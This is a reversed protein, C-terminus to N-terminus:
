AISLGPARGEPPRTKWNTHRKCLDQAYLELFDVTRGLISDQKGSLPQEAEEKLLLAFVRKFPTGLRPHPSPVAASHCSRLAHLGWSAAHLRRVSVPPPAGVGALGGAPIIGSGGRLSGPLRRRAQDVAAAAAARDVSAPFRLVARASLPTESVGVPFSARVCAVAGIFGTLTALGSPCISGSGVEM